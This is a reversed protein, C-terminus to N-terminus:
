PFSPNFIIILYFAFIIIATLFGGVIYIIWLFHNSINKRIKVFYFLALIVGISQITIITKLINEYKYNLLFNDRLIQPHVKGSQLLSNIVNGVPSWLVEPVIFMALFIGLWVKQKKTM